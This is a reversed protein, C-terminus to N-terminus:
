DILTQMRDYATQSIEMWEALGANELEQVYIDWDDFSYTGTVLGARWEDRLGNVTVKIDAAIDNEEESLIIPLPYKEPTKQYVGAVALATTYLYDYEDGNWVLSPDSREYPRWAPGLDGWHHNQLSVTWLDIHRVIYPPIGMNWYLSKETTSEEALDWDEGQKGFRSEVSLQPEWMMDGIRFCLEPNQAYSTVYWRAANPLVIYPTTYAVGEPGSLPAMPVMAKKNDSEQYISMSAAVMSGIPHSEDKLLVRLATQDQTFTLPSLLGESVLQNMYQLGAKWEPKNIAIDLKGDEDFLMYDTNVNPFIFSGMLFNYPLNNWGNTSGILPYEDTTDGNGNMDNDRFARLTSLYEETTAPIPLGLKDLWEQNIWARSSWENGIVKNIFPISYIHGNPSYLYPMVSANEPDDLFPRMYYTLNEYYDDLPLLVGADIFQYLSGSLDRDIIEPFPERAALMASFKTQTEVSPFLVFELDVNAMEEIRKTYTNTEYDEVSDNKVLGISIKVPEDGL